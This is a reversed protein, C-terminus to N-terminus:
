LLASLKEFYRAPLDELRDVLLDKLSGETLVDLRDSAARWASEDGTASYTRGALYECNM